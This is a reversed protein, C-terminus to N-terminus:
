AALRQDAEQFIARKIESIESAAEVVLDCNALASWETSLNLRGIADHMAQLSMRGAQLSSNWSKEIREQAATAAHQDVEKITVRFGQKAALAGIGAGMIGGGIIGLHPLAPSQSTAGSPVATVEMVSADLWTSPKKALERKLFLDLLNRATESGLLKVFAHREFATGDHDGSRAVAEIAFALAPYQQALGRIQKRAQQIIFDRGWSTQEFARRLWSRNGAVAPVNAMDSLVKMPQSEWEGSTLLRHVLGVRKSESATLSNGKLIMSLANELGVIRPLRQTGGWGPILGLKIEPLGLKTTPTDVAIRYRCSLPM